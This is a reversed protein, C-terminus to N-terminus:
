ISFAHNKEALIFPLHNFNIHSLRLKKRYKILTEKVEAKMLTTMKIFMEFYIVGYYHM